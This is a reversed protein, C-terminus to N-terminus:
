LRRDLKELLSRILRLEQFCGRIDGRTPDTNTDAIGQAYPALLSNILSLEDGDAQLLVVRDTFRPWPEGVHWLQTGHSLTFQLSM